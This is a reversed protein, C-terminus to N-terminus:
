KTSTIPELAETIWEWYREGGRIRVDSHYADPVSLWKGKVRAKQYVEEGMRFPVVRDRGGHAVSVPVDLSEVISVTNFHIRSAFPWVTITFWSGFMMGAIDRASTFPSELILARPRHRTALESSVATGLSHGYYAIRDPPVHLDNIAYTYAADADHSVGDYSPRGSMGMYGRYEGLMVAVGTRRSIEQAWDIMRVALDANGHFALLLGRSTASDGVIYAFLHQGDSTIYEVRHVSGADPYPGRPPQFAIREQFVWVIVILLLFVGILFALITMLRKRAISAM